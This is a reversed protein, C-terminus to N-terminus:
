FRKLSGVNKAGTKRRRKHDRTDTRKEEYPERMPLQREGGWVLAQPHDTEGEIM